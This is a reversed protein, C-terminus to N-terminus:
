YFLYKRVGSDICVGFDFIFSDILFRYAEVGVVQYYLVFFFDNNSLLFRLLAMVYFRSRGIRDTIFLLASPKREGFM